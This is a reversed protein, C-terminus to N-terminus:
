SLHLGSRQDARKQASGACDGVANRCENPKAVERTALTQKHKACAGQEYDDGERIPISSCFERRPKANGKRERPKHCDNGGRDGERNEDHRVVVDNDVVRISSVTSSNGNDGSSSRGVKPQGQNRWVMGGNCETRHIWVVAHKRLLYLYLNYVLRRYLNGFELTRLPKVNQIRNFSAVVQETDVSM